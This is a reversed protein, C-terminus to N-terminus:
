CVKTGNLPQPQAADGNVLRITATSRHNNSDYAVVKVTVAPDKGFISSPIEASFPTQPDSFVLMEDVFFDVHSIGYEDTAEASV